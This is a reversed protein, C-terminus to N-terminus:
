LDVEREPLGFTRSFVHVGDRGDLILFTRRLEQEYEDVTEERLGPEDEGARSLANGLLPSFSAHEAMFETITDYSGQYRISFAGGGVPYGAHGAFLAYAEGHLRVGDAYRAIDKPTADEPIDLGHFGVIATIVTRESYPAHEAHIEVIQEDLDVAPVDAHLWRGGPRPGLQPDDAQVFVMPAPEVHESEPTDPDTGEIRELFDWLASVWPVHELELERIHDLEALVGAPNLDGTAAFHEMHSGHGRHLTAAIVRAASASIGGGQREAEELGRRILSSAHEEHYSNVFRPTEGTRSRRTRQEPAASTPPREM